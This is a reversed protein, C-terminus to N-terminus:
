KGKPNPSYQHVQRSVRLGIHYDVRAKEVVEKVMERACQRSTFQDYPIHPAIHQWAMWWVMGYLEEIIEYSEAAEQQTMEDAHKLHGAENTIDKYSTM